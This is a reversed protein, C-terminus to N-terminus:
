CPARSGGVINIQVKLICTQLFNLAVVKEWCLLGHLVQFLLSCCIFKLFRAYFIPPALLLVSMEFWLGCCFFKYVKLLISCIICSHLLLFAFSILFLLAVCNSHRLSLVLMCFNLLQIWTPKM